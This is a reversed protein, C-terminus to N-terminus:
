GPLVQRMLDNGFRDDPDLRNRLRVADGAHPYRTSLDVPTFAKGWHPRPDFAALREEVRRLVPEVRAPDPRWTMHLGVSDRGYAPSLWQEDAAVSRIEAVFLVPAMAAAASSWARLADVAAQRPVLVESQIEAGSSPVAGARFHPLREHWPGPVGLQQTCSAPSHGPIPHRPGDARRAGLWRAPPDRETTLQKRWVQARVPGRWDTFVSVSYAAALVEDLGAVLTELPVDEYVWQAVDYAPVLDLTLATVCGLAGLSVVVGGFDPDTRNFMRVSGDATVLEVAAVSAALGPTRDGSGHTGTAVAGALSIHPLSAMTPLAWGQAHLAEAVAGCTLGASMTAQRRAPDVEVRAPLDAVSVLTGSTDGLRNFSHRSGVPRLPGGAAVVEQLEALSRPAVVRAARYTVTGGWNRV